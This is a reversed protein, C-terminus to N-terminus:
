DFNVEVSGFFRDNFYVKFTVTGEGTVPIEIMKEEKKHTNNYVVTETGNYVKVIKVTETEEEFKDLPIGLKKTKQTEDSNEQSDGSIDDSNNEEQSSNEIEEPGLSVILSVIDNEKVEKGANISQSIIIDKEVQEDNVYEVDKLILGLTKITEKSDNINKGVLNPMIFNNIEPGKSAIIEVEENEAVQTSASPTQGIVTDIPLDNYQYTVNGLKLNNNQLLIKAQNINKLELNPVTVMKPGNSVILKIPFGEKVVKGYEPSQSIVYGEKIESNYQRGAVEVILGSNELKEKAEEYELNHVNPVTLEKAFIEDKYTNYFISIVLILSLIFASAIGIVMATKSTKRKPEEVDEEIEYDNITPIIRTPSDDDIIDAIKEDPNNIVKELDNYLSIADDYRKSKDKQLSKLIVSELGKSVKDNILSPPILEEKLHKLAVTIPTDGSFPVRATVMEYMTVGLSYIDSKEDVYGGRAQEPSFYHVSGIVNGTNTVTSSTIARAIGFDTVKIQGDESILINHPKIDRHVIHNSHAHHLALAIQKSISIAEKNTLPGKEKIYKKLTTGNVYEMVIYHTDNDNGVDYVNVINPHSLSAAAQSEKGFKNIFDEDSTFEPRLVKVAVYRNLLRCRAKYVLAMGGGGIKELIEYRNGLIKGIM